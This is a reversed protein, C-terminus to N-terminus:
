GRITGSDIRLIGLYLGTENSLWTGRLNYGFPKFDAGTMLGDCVNMFPASLLIICTTFFRTSKM